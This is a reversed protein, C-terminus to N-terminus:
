QIELINEYNIESRISLSEGHFNKLGDIYIKLDNSDLDIYSEINTYGHAVAIQLWHKDIFKSYVSFGEKIFWRGPSKHNEERLENFDSIDEDQELIRNFSIEIPYSPVQESEGCKLLTMHVLTGCTIKKNNKFKRESEEIFEKKQHCYEYLAEWESLPSKEENFKSLADIFRQHTIEGRQCSL